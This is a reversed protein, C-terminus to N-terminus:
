STQSPVRKQERHRNFVQIHGFPTTRVSAPPERRIRKLDVRSGTPRHHRRHLQRDQRVASPSMYEKTWDIGFAKYVTAHVDGMSVMREAVFAGREDSAGVVKGGEVGGGGLIMSWCHPWHDRGGKSNFRPTRGFEGMVLVLTSELLGRAELDDLLVPLSRELGPVLNDRHKKDNGAHTDWGNLDHGAATVFRSGAEVLRRSLLLSQGFGTRGYADRTKESEKSLDFAERVEPSLVMNVAQETFSDMKFAEAMEMKRRYTEDM